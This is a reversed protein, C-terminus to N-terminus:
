KAMQKLVLDTIDIDPRAYVAEQFVVDYKGAEAVARIAARAQEVFRAGLERRRLAVEESLREVMQDSQRMMEQIERVRAQADAPALRSQEAELRAREAEIRKQLRQIEAGRPEFERKLDESARVASPAEREIRALNVYAIKGLAQAWALAPAMALLLIGAAKILRSVIWWGSDVM